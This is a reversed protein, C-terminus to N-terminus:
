VPKRAPGYEGAPAQPKRVPAGPLISGTFLDNQFSSSEVGANRRRRASHPPQHPEQTPVDVLPDTTAVAAIREVADDVADLGLIGIEDAQLLDIAVDAAAAVVVLRPQEGAVEAAM